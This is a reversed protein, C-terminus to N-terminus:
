LLRHLMLRVGRGAPSSNILARSRAPKASTRTRPLWWKMLCGSPLVSDHRDVARFDDAGAQEVLNQSFALEGDGFEDFNEVPLDPNIILGPSNM